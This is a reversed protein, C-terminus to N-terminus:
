HAFFRIFAGKIIKHPVIILVLFIGNNKDVHFVNTLFFM